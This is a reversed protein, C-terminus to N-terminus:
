QNLGSLLQVLAPTQEYWAWAIATLAALLLISAIIRNRPRSLVPKGTIGLQKLKAWAGDVSSHVTHQNHTFVDALEKRLCVSEPQGWPFESDDSFVLYGNACREGVLANIAMIQSQLEVLPNVFRFSRQRVSQTWQDVNADGFIKGSYPKENFVVIQDPMLLLHDIYIDGGVGDPVFVEHMSDNSIRKFVGFHKRARLADLLSPMLFMLALLLLTFILLAFWFPEAWFRQSFVQLQLLYFDM